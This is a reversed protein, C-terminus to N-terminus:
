MDFTKGKGPRGKPFGRGVEEEGRGRHPHKGVWGGVGMKGGQCEGVNPCQIGEPGLAAGGV